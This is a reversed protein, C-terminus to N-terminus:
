RDVRWPATLVDIVIRTAGTDPLMALQAEPSGQFPAVTHALRMEGHRDGAMVLAPGPFTALDDHTGHAQTDAPRPCSAPATSTSSATPSILDGLMTRMRIHGRLAASSM